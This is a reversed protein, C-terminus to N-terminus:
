YIFEAFVTSFWYCGSLIGTMINLLIVRMMTQWTNAGLSQASESTTPFQVLSNLTTSLSIAHLFDECRDSPLSLPCDPFSYIRILAPWPWGPSAFPLITLVDLLPKAAPLRAHVWYTTPGVLILGLLVASFAVIFSNRLTSAFYSHVLATKYWEFTYGEPLITRDWRTALSFVYTAIIPIIM